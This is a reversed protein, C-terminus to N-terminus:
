APFRQRYAAVAEPNILNVPLSGALIRITEQAV